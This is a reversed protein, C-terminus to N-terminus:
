TDEGEYVKPHRKRYEKVMEPSRHHFYYDKPPIPDCDVFSLSLTHNLHPESLTLISSELSEGNVLLDNRPQFISEPKKMRSRHTHCLTEVYEANQHDAFFIASKSHHIQLANLHSIDSRNTVDLFTNKQFKGSYATPDILMLHLTPTLPFFIQLGPTQFGLVGRDTIKRYYSNYFVVPSDSFVFPFDTHNRIICLKMDALLSAGKLAIQIELLAIATSDQKIRIEDREIAELHKKSEESIPPQRLHEKFMYLCMEEMASSLKEVESETRVRQFAVAQILWSFQEITFPSPNDSLAAKILAKLTTAHLAELKSINSEIETTGYFKHKACQNKIPAYPITKNHQTLYTCIYPKGSSFLKFYYQPVFHHNDYNAM